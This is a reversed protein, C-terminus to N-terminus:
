EGESKSFFRLLKQKASRIQYDVADCSYSGKRNGSLRFAIQKYTLGDNHFMRLITTQLPTLFSIAEHPYESILSSLPGIGSHYFILDLETNFNADDKDRIPSTPLERQSVHDQSVWKEAKACLAVCHDRKKCEQCLM